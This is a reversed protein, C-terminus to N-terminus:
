GHLNLFGGDIPYNVGTIFGAEDSCLYVALNAVEEPEGMRGVPQTEALKGMMEQEHGPYNKALFGDVFPTHVRAPSIANCRIGDKVYDRAISMTMALVAGKSTSYAFRDSLGACGAVSGMNLIVGGGQRRMPEIAARSCLYVGKVNIRMLRDFDEEPTTALSGVHAVGANNVLIHLRGQALVEEFAARVSEADSVDCRHASASGGTATLERAAAEAQEVSRDLIHVAAGQRVFARCMALGIGSAGGTVVATKGALSFPAGSQEQM